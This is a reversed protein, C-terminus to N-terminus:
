AVPTVHMRGGSSPLLFINLPSNQLFFAGTLYKLLTEAYTTCYFFVRVSTSVSM